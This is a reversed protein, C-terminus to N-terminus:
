GFGPLPGTGVDTSGFSQVDSLGFAHCISVLLRNHELGGFSLYRGTEIAGGAGGALVFPVNEFAHTNGVGIESGWVVLTNDLVSGNGEPVAALRDLLYAFRDAYWTYIKILNARADQNSDPEHSLGHHGGSAGAWSYVTGDNDGVKLQISGVNTLGCSLAAALVDIQRDLVQPTQSGNGSGLSSGLEPVQCEAPRGSQLRRELERVGELHAELKYRDASSIRTSLQDLQGHVSDLVSRRRAQQAEFALQGAQSPQFGSFLNDFARWPNTEPQLPKKPGAFIMRAVPSNSGSHVGLELSRLSTEGGTQQAVVQDISPGDVWDIFYDQVKFASGASLNSGTWVLGIGETHPPATIKSHTIDLGDLINLKAKHRELPKLISGLEFASGSGSPRWAEHITGHPTYFLVLRKPFLATQGSANFLPVLPSLVSAAGLGSLLRRRTLLTSGAAFRKM